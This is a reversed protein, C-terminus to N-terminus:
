FLRKWFRKVSAKAQRFPASVPEIVVVEGVLGLHLVPALTVSPNKEGCSIENSWSAFGSSEVRIRYSGEAVERRFVGTDDTKGTAEFNNGSVTVTAGAMFAGSPDAPRIEIACQNRPKAVVPTGSAALITLGMASAQAFKRITSPPSPRFEVNGNADRTLRCCMKRNNAYYLDLAEAQTLLSLDHVSQQCNGCFGAVAVGQKCPTQIEWKGRM